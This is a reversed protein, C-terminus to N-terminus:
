AVAKRGPQQEVAPLWVHIRTGSDPDSRVSMKGRHASVINQANPLGLGVGFSKTSFLPEFVRKLVDPSIGIGDDSVVFELGGDVVATSVGLRGESLEGDRTTKEVIADCGNDLLNILLRRIQEADGEIAVKGANLDREITVTAPAEYDDLVEAVLSDADVRSRDPRKVQAYNLLENIIKTCRGISREARDLSNTLDYEPDKAKRKIIEFATVVAGIPNRLEHAMTGTLQGLTALRESRVLDDQADRLEKTRLEVRKELARNMRMATLYHWGSFIVIVVALGIGGMTVVKEFPWDRSPKAFWKTYIKRYEATKVFERTVASLRRHIEIRSPHVAIGRKIERLPPGVRKVRESIGIEQTLLNIVPVPYILGDIRGALLDFLAERIDGFVVPEIEPHDLLIKNGINQIVTGVRGGYLDAIGVFGQSDARVFLSVVFTEVPDTFKARKERSPIIGVNPMVDVEGRYLAVIAEKVTLKVQYSVRYGARAAVANLIEVGFGTPEAGEEAIYHPPWFKPISATITETEGATIPQAMAAAVVNGALLVIAAAIAAGKGPVVRRIRGYWIPITM